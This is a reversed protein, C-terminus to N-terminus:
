DLDRVWRKIKSDQEMRRRVRHREHSVATYDMGGLYEGIQKQYIKGYRYMMEM